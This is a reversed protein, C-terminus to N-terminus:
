FTALGSKILLKEASDDWMEIQVIQGHRTIYRDIFRNGSFVEGDHWEGSLTGICYVVAEHDHQSVDFRDIRKKFWRYRRALFGATDRPDNFHRGGALTIRIDAACFRLVSDPDSSLAAAMYERVLEVPDPRPTPPPTRPSSFPPM